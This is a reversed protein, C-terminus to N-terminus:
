ILCFSMELRTVLFATLWAVKVLSLVAGNKFSCVVYKVVM